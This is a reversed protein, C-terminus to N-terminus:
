RTRPDTLRIRERELRARIAAADFEEPEAGPHFYIETLGNPLREILRLLAANTM